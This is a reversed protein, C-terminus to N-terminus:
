KQYLRPESAGAVAGGTRDGEEVGDIQVITADVEWGDVKAAAPSGM